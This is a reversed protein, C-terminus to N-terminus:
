DSLNGAGAADGSKEVSEVSLGYTAKVAIQRAVYRCDYNKEKQCGSARTTTVRAWIRRGMWAVLNLPDNALEERVTLSLKSAGTM